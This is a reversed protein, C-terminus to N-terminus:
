KKIKITKKSSWKGYYIKNDIKKYIRVRIYYKKGKKLKSITVSNSSKKVTKAGKFNSKTGYQIQYGSGDITGSLKLSIKKGKKNKAKTIKAKTQKVKSITKSSKDVINDYLKSTLSTLVAARDAENISCITNLTASDQLDMHESVIADFDKKNISVGNFVSPDYKGNEMLEYM